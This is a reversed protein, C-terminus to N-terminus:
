KYIITARKELTIIRRAEEVEGEGGSLNFPFYYRISIVGYFLTVVSIVSQVIPM